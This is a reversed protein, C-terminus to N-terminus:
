RHGKSRWLSLLSLSLPPVIGAACEDVELVRQVSSFERQMGQRCHGPGREGSHGDKEHRAEEEKEGDCRCGPYSEDKSKPEIQM